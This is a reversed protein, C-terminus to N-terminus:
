CYWPETLYPIAARALRDEDTVAPPAVGAAEYAMEAVREFIQRRTAKRKGGEHVVSQVEAWLEDVRPDANSWPYVLMDEDFPGVTQAIEPLELLRSGAPILLRIGLQIPAVHDALGLQQLGAIFDCYTELTTWPTFAVFTPSLALGAQRCLELVRVFDEYTHGKELRRLVAEDFSEVAATVFACGTERLASLHESHKLLHEVKITVDYTIEPHEGHLATVIRMAHGIGNFFDPDGFTIHEAGKAVQRRIDELVVEPQVVRFIGNYVPVIPCHRCRHKCGRSAETYGTIRAKGDEGVLKAYRSLPPLSQREPALFNQRALSITPPPEDTRRTNGGRLSEFIAVLGEEFEGGLISQAGLRQLFAENAPAYLGFCCVQARPNLQRVKPLVQAALRTATHMPVYIGVFDASRVAAEDLPQCSLDLCTVESGARRLWAAPSALGFPQRGLEYTSILLSKL